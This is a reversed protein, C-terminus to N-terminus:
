ACTVTIVLFKHKSNETVIEGPDVKLLHVAQHVFVLLVHQFMYM